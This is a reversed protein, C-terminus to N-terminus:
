PEVERRVRDIEDRCFDFPGDALFPLSFTAGHEILFVVRARDELLEEVAGSYTM